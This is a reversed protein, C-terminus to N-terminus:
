SFVNNFLFFAMFLIVFIFLLVFFYKYGARQKRSDGARLEERLPKAYAHAPLPRRVLSPM